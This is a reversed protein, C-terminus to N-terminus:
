TAPTAAVVPRAAVMGLTTGPPTAQSTAVSSAAGLAQPASGAHVLVLLGFLGVLVSAAIGVTVGRWRAVMRREEYPLYDFPSSRCDKSSLDDYANM